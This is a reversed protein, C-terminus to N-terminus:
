ASCLPIYPPTTGSAMVAIIRSSLVRCVGSPETATAPKTLPLAESSGYVSASNRLSAPAASGSSSIPVPEIRSRIQVLGEIVTIPMSPCDTARDELVSSGFAFAFIEIRMAGPSSGTLAKAASRAWRSSFMGNPPRISNRSVSSPLGKWAFLEPQACDKASVASSAAKPLSVARIPM